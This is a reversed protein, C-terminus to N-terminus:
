RRKKGYRRRLAEMDRHHEESSLKSKLQDMEFEHKKIRGGKTVPRRDAVGFYRFLKRGVWLGVIGVAILIYGWLPILAAVSFITIVVVVIVFFILVPM